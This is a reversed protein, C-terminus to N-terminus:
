VLLHRIDDTQNSANLPDLSIGFAESCCNTGTILDVAAPPFITEKFLRFVLFTLVLYVLIFIPEEHATIPYLIGSIAV